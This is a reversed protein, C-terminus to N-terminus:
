RAAPARAASAARGRGVTTGFPAAATSASDRPRARRRATDIEHQHVHVHGLMSPRSAVRRMRAASAALPAGRVGITASVALANPSSRSAQRAAPM